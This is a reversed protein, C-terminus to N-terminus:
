VVHSVPMLDTVFVSPKSPNEPCSLMKRLAFGSLSKDVLQDAKYLCLRRSMVVQMHFHLVKELAISALSDELHQPHLLSRNGPSLPMYSSIQRVFEPVVIGAEAREHHM